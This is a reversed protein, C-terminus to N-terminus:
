VSNLNDTSNIHRSKQINLDKSINNKKRRKLYIYTIILSLIVIIVAGLIIGIIVGTNIKKNDKKPYFRNTILVDEYIDNILYVKSLNVFSINCENKYPIKTTNFTVFQIEKYKELNLKCNLNAKKNNGIIFTCDSAENIENMKFKENIEGETLNDDIKGGIKFNFNYDSSTFNKIEDMTFEVTPNNDLQVLNKSAILEELNSNSTTEDNGPNIEQLTYNSLDTKNADGICEYDVVNGEKNEEVEKTIECIAKIVITDNSNELNRVRLPQKIKFILYIIFAHGSNIQSNTIGRLNLKPGNITKGNVEKESNMELRFIDKWTIAPISEIKEVCAGTVDNVVYDELECIDCFYEDDKKCVKCKKAM